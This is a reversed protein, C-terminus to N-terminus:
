VLVDVILQADPHLQLPRRDADLRTAVLTLRQTALARTKTASMEYRTMIVSAEVTGQQHHSAHVPSAFFPISLVIGASSVLNVELVDPDVVVGRLTFRLARFPWLNFDPLAAIRIEGRPEHDFDTRIEATISRDVYEYLEPSAAEVDRVTLQTGSSRMLGPLVTSLLPPPPTFASNFAQAERWLRDVNSHVSWFLPDAVSTPVSVMYRGGRHHVQNHIKELKGPRQGAGGGFEEFSRLQSLMTRWAAANPIPQCGEGCSGPNHPYRDMWLPNANVGRCSGDTTGRASFAPPLTQSRLDWGLFDWYPVGIQCGLRELETEFHNLFGRHWPLFLQGGHIGKLHMAAHFDAFRVKYTDPECRLKALADRYSRLQDPTLSLVNIRKRRM